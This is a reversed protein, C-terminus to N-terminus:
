GTIFGNWEAVESYGFNLDVFLKDGFKSTEEFEIEEKPTKDVTADFKRDFKRDFRFEIFDNKKLIIMRSVSGEKLNLSYWDLTGLFGFGLGELV